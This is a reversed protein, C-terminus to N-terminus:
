AAAAVVMIEEDLVRVVSGAYVKRTKRSEPEGDVEVLGDAVMMKAAGGSHAIALFKLLNHLEIYEGRLEFTHQNM